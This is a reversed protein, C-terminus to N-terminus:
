NANVGPRPLVKGPGTVTVTVVPPRPSLAAPRKWARAGGAQPVERGAHQRLAELVTRPPLLGGLIRKGFGSGTQM